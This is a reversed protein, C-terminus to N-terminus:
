NRHCMKCWKCQNCLSSLAYTGAGLYLIALSAFMLALTYEYGGNQLSYGNPLHVKFTAVLMIIVLIGASYRTAIGLLVALGGLFELYAVLYAMWSALGLSAFMSIVQDINGIKGWGANIFVLGVALRLFLKGLDVENLYDKIDKM